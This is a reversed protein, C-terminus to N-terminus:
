AWWGAGEEETAAIVAELSAAQLTPKREFIPFGFTSAKKLLTKTTSERGM